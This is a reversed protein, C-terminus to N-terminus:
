AKKWQLIRDCFDKNNFLGHIYTGFATGEKNAAGDFVEVEAGDRKTITFLPRSDKLYRTRGEHREFGRMSLGDWACECDSEIVSPMIRTVINFFGLGDCKSHSYESGKIDIVKVGMMQFGGSIGFVTAGKKWAARVKDTAGSRKIYVYDQITNATGPLIVLDAGNIANSDESILLDVDDRKSLGDFEDLDSANPYKLIRVKSKRGNM